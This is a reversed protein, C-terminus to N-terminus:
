KSNNSLEQEHSLNRGNGAVGFPAEAVVAEVPLRVVEDEDAVGPNTLDEEGKLVKQLATVEDVAVDDNVVVDDDVVDHGAVGVSRSRRILFLELRVVVQGPARPDPVQLQVEDPGRDDIVGSNM